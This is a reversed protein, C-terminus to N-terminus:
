CFPPRPPSIAAELALLLRALLPLGSRDPHNGSIGGALRKGRWVLWGLNGRANFSVCDWGEEEEKMEERAEGVDRKPPSLRLGTSKEGYEAEGWLPGCRFSRAM